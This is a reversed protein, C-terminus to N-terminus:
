TFYLLSTQLARAHMFNRFQRNKVIDYWVSEDNKFGKVRFMEDFLLMRIGKDSCKKVSWYNVSGKRKSNNVTINGDDDIHVGEFKLCYGVIKDICAPRFNESWKIAADTYQNSNGM